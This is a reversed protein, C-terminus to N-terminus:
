IETFFVLSVILDTPRTMKAIIRQMQTPITDGKETVKPMNERYLKMRKELTWKVM